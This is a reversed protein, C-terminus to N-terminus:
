KLKEAYSRKVDQNCLKWIKIKQANNEKKATFGKLEIDMLLLRHQTQCVEGSIMKTKSTRAIWKKFSTILKHTQCDGIKFTIKKEREKVFM